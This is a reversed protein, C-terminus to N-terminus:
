AGERETHHVLGVGGEGGGVRAEEAAQAAVPVAAELGVASAASLALAFAIGREAPAAVYEPQSRRGETRRGLYMCYLLQRKKCHLVRGSDECSRRSVTKLAAANPGETEFRMSRPMRTM